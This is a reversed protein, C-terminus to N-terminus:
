FKISSDLSSRHRNVFVTATTAMMMKFLNDAGRSFLHTTWLALAGGYLFLKGNEVRGTGTSGFRWRAASSASACWLGAATM